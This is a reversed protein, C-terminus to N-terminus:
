SGDVVGAALARLEARAPLLRIPREGEDIADLEAEAHALNTRLDGEQVEAGPHAGARELLDQVELCHRATFVETGDGRGDSARTLFEREAAAVLALARDLRYQNLSMPWLSATSV